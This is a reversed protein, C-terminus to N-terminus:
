LTMLETTKRKPYPVPENLHKLAVAESSAGDFPLSGTVMEYLSIGLAYVDARRDTREGKAQEPPIYQVSGVVRDSQESVREIVTTNRAIGFDTIKVQGDQNIMINAPKIDLHVFGESHAYNLAQCVSVAIDVARQIDLAGETNIIQKLTQGEVYEMVLYYTDEIHGADIVQVIGSHELTMMAQMETEFRKVFNTDKSLNRKLVKGRCNKPGSISRVTFM